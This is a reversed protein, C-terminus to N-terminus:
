ASVWNETMFRPNACILYGLSELRDMICKWVCGKEWRKLRRNATSADGYEKPLYNL